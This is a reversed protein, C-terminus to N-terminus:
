AVIAIVAMFIFGAITPWSTHLAEPEENFHHHTTGFHLFTGAGLALIVPEALNHFLGTGTAISGMIVGVPLAFIFVAMLVLASSRSLSSGILLRSLAFSAAGKHAILAIFIVLIAADTDGAGLALGALLSHFALAITAALPSINHRHGSHSCTETWGLALMVAGALAFAWPYHIGHAAFGAVAHPLLHILGAGLFIGVALPDGMHALRAIGTKRPFFSPWAGGIAVAVLALSLLSLLVPKTM